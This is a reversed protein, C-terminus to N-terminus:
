TLTVSKWIGNIRIYLKNTISDVALTGDSPINLYDADSPIGAKVRLTSFGQHLRHDKSFDPTPNKWHLYNFIPQTVGQGSADPPGQSEGYITLDDLGNGGKGPDIELHQTGFNQRVGGVGYSVHHLGLNKHALTGNSFAKIAIVAPVSPHSTAYDSNERFDFATIDIVTRTDNIADIIRGDSRLKGGVQFYGTHIYLEGNDEIKAM